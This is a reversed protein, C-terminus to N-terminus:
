VQFTVPIETRLSVRHGELPLGLGMLRLRVELSRGPRLPDLHKRQMGEHSTKQIGSDEPDSVGGTLTSKGADPIKCSNCLNRLCLAVRELAKTSLTETGQDKHGLGSPRAPGPSLPQRHERSGRPLTAGQVEAPAEDPRRCPLFVSEGM